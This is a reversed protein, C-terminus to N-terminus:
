LVWSALFLPHSWCEPHIRLGLYSSQIRQAWGCDATVRYAAAPWSLVYKVATYHSKMKKVRKKKALVNRRQLAGRRNKVLGQGWSCASCSACSSLRLVPPSNLFFPSFMLSVDEFRQPVGCDGRGFSRSIATNKCVHHILDHHLCDYKGVPYHSTLTDISHIPNLAM